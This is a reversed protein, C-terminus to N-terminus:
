TPAMAEDLSSNMVLIEMSACLQLLCKTDIGLKKCQIFYFKCGHIDNSVFKNEHTRINKNLRKNILMRKNLFHSRM